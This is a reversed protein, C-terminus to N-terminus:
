VLLGVSRLWAQVLSSVDRDQHPQAAQSDSRWLVYDTAGDSEGLRQYVRPMIPVHDGFVCLASPRTSSALVQRLLGFMADANRLHRVYSVLDECGEPMVTKLVGKADSESVKELHLPGHNEMSIVHVFLPKEGRDEQLLQVVKMGLAIDGIYPGGHGESDFAEIGIFEDFGLKPLVKDRGYFSRHYPHVCLTRYGLSQLYSAVTAFGQSALKRYPNFQHIGLSAGDTGSLFAFETRVTNAGWAAVKLRGHGVAEMKLADFNSLVNEKVLGPYARRADFFSESQVAVLDPLTGPLVDPAKADHFPASSQQLTHPQKEYRAYAWLSALLGIGCLDNDPDVAVHVRRGMLIAVLLGLAALAGTLAVFLALPAKPDFMHEQPLEAFSMVWVGAGATVSDELVLGALLAMGYGGGAAVARGIGFFPLYLRPHKVADFFYEFDSYVFPEKLAQYKTNSVLIILLEIALVNAVAFYPRRFLMLELAFALTWVGVHVGVAALPRRWPAVPRPTLLAEIAFSLVLGILYPPLLPIWFAEIM